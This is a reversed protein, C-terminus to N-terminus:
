EEVEPPKFIAARQEEEKTVGAIINKAEELELVDETLEVNEREWKLSKELIALLSRIYQRVNFQGVRKSRSALESIFDPTCPSIDMKGKRTTSFIGATLEKVGDETLENLSIDVFRDVITMYRELSPASRVSRLAETRFVLVMSVPSEADAAIDHLDFDIKDKTIKSWDEVEDIVVFAFTDTNKLIKEFATFRRLNTDASGFLRRYATLFSGSICPYLLRPFEIEFDEQKVVKARGVREEISPMLMRIYYRLLEGIEDFVRPEKAYLEDLKKIFEGTKLTRFNLMKEYLDKLLASGSIAEGELKRESIERLSKRLLIFALKRICELWLDKRRKIAEDRPLDSGWPVPLGNEFTYELFERRKTPGKLYFALVHRYNGVNPKENEDEFFLSVNMKHSVNYLFTSKGSGWWAILRLLQRAGKDSFYKIREVLEDIERERGYAKITWDEFVIPPPGEM